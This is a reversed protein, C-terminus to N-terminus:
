RVSAATSVAALFDDTDVRDGLLLALRTLFGERDDEPVTDIGESLALWSAERRAQEPPLV